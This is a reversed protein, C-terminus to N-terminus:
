KGGRARLAQRRKKWPLCWLYAGTFSLLVLGVGTADIALWGLNGFFDGNHLDTILRQLSVPAAGTGSVPLSVARLEGTAAVSFVGEKAALLLGDDLPQIKRVDLPSKGFAVIETWREGGDSALIFLGKATASVIRNGSFAASKVEQGPLLNEWTLGNDGSRYFGDKACAYVIGDVQQMQRVQVPLTGRWQGDVKAFVGQKTNVLIHGGAEMVDWSDPSAPVAYGPIDVAVKDLGLSKKHVLLVGTVSLIIVIIATVLGFWEHLKRMPRM